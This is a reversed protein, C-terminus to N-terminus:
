HLATNCARVIVLDPPSQKRSGGIKPLFVKQGDAFRFAFPIASLRLLYMSADFAEDM